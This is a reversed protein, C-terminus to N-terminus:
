NVLEIVNFLSFVFLCFILLFCILLCIIAICCKMYIYIYISYIFAVLRLSIDGGM